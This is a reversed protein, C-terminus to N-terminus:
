KQVASTKLVSQTWAIIVKAAENEIGYYAHPSQGECPDSKVPRGGSLLRAEKHPAATLAEVLRPVDSPPTVKCSDAEHHVVLVPSAIKGLATEFVSVNKGPGPQTVTSTLVTGAIVQPGLRSAVAAASTSGRSTGIAFVPLNAKAKVADIVLKIDDAHRRSARFNNGFAGNGVRDSPIDPYALLLGSQALNDKITLLFNNKLKTPAGALAMNGDGGVFVIAIAIPTGRPEVLYYSQTVGAVSAPITQVSDAVATGATTAFAAALIAAGLKIRMDSMDSM